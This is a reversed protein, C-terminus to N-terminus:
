HRLEVCAVFEAAARRLPEPLPAAARGDARCTQLVADLKDWGEQRLRDYTDILV